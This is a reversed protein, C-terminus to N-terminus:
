IMKFISSRYYNDISLLNNEIVNGALLLLKKANTAIPDTKLITPLERLDDPRPLFDTNEIQFGIDELLSFEFYAYLLLIEKESFDQLHDSIYKTFDFLRKHQVGQPLLKNLIFCMGQCVTLHRSSDMSFIWNQKEAKLKWFGLSGSDKANYDVEVNSFISFTPTKTLNVMAHM